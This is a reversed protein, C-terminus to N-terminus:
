RYPDFLRQVRHNIQCIVEYTITNLKEAWEYASIELNGSRGILIVEDGVCIETQPGLNVMSQDMCVRGVIPYSRGKILVRGRNSFLRNFGDAYGVPITAIWTDEPASWTRGYGITTGANVKKIFSVRTIFSLGPKLDISQVMKSSPYFGYIMIGPRVMDFWSAPHALVGGSNACHVLEIKRGIRKQINDVTAAFLTIQEQTYTTDASDSVPLHTFVGQLHLNPCETEIYQAFKPADQPTVGIRGMGTDIKLHVNIKRGLETAIENLKESNERECVSLTIDNDVAAQMEEPFAPSFKLIPLSIGANRLEIGEPVTAIGLWDVGIAEAMRAVEVAGHGYANAKVAILIKRQEGIACRIGEINSRINQLHIRAHTQYLLSPQDPSSM